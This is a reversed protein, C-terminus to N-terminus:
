VLSRANVRRSIIAIKAGFTGLVYLNMFLQAMGVLAFALGLKWILGPGGIFTGASCLGAAIMFAIIVGGF